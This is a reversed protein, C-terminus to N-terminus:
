PLLGSLDYGAKWAAQRIVDPDGGRAAEALAWLVASRMGSRCFAVAPGEAKELAGALAEVSERSPMGQVPLHVYTLGLDRAASEIEASTPQDPQEHDPRNNILLVVGREALAPIDGPWVQPSVFVQDSLPNLRTMM